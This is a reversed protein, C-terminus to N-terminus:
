GDVSEQLLSPLRARLAASLRLPAISRGHLDDMAETKLTELEFDASRVTDVEFREATFRSIRMM